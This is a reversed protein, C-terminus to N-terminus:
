AVAFALGATRFRSLIEQIIEWKAIKLFRSVANQKTSMKNAIEKQKMGLLAYSIAEAQRSSWGQIVDDLILAYTKTDAFNLHKYKLDDHDYGHIALRRKTKSILDLGKGSLTLARGEAQINDSPWRDIDGVALSVRIDITNNPIYSQTFARIGIATSLAHYDDNCLLQFADGRYFELHFVRGSLLTGVYEKIARQLDDKEKISLSSSNVIDCSLVFNMVM